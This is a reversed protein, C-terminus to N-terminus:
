THILNHENNGWVANQVVGLHFYNVAFGCGASAGFQQKQLGSHNVHVKLVTEDVL